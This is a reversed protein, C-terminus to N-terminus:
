PDIAFWSFNEIYTGSLSYDKRFRIKRFEQSKTRVEKEALEM